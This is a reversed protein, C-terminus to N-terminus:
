AGRLPVFTGPFDGSRHCKVQRIVEGDPRPAARQGRILSLRSLATPDILPMASPPRSPWDASLSRPHQWLLVSPALLVLKSAGDQRRRASHPYRLVPIEVQSDIAM